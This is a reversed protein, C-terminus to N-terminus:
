VIGKLLSLSHQVILINGHKYENITAALKSMLDDIRGKRLNIPMKEVFSM